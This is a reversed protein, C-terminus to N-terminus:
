SRSAFSSASFDDDYIEDFPKNIRFYVSKTNM